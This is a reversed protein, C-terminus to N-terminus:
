EYASDDPPSFLALWEGTSQETVSSQTTFLSIWSNGPKLPFPQKDAGIFKIPRNFGNEAEWQRNNTSWRIKYLNGDRFLFAWGELGCCLEIDYQNKRYISYDALLFIVNEFELQRNTLRDVDPHFLGSGDLDDTFRLYTGSIPQYEWRAQSYQHFYQKVVLAPLGSQPIEPSFLNGSYNVPVLPNHNRESIERLYDVDLLATNPSDTGPQGFILECPDLQPLIDAGASAFVLCGTPFLQGFDNYSLRGSRIPGVYTREPAIDNPLYSFELEGIGVLGIDLHSLGGSSASFPATLDDPNVDSDLDEFGVNPKSVDMKKPLEIRVAYQGTQNIKELDFFYYGNSTTGTSAIVEGSQQNILELCVGPVGVEWDDQHGNKNEDLWVRNGIWNVPLATVPQTLCDGGQDSIRRARDGYFVSLYRTTGYGLFLENVHNAFSLGAQPKATVPSNSISVLVAPTKLDEPHSAVLGTLPNIGEPFQNLEPGLTELMSYPQQILTPIESPTQTPPHLTPISTPPIASNTSTLSPQPNNVQPACASIVLSFLFLPIFIKM